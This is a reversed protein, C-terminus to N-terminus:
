RRLDALALLGAFGLFATGSIRRQWTRFGRSRRIRDGLRAFAVALFGCWLASGISFLGGLTGLQLLIRGRDPDVFQPLFAVFFLAVKPNLLNITAGKVVNKMPTWVSGAATETTTDQSRLIKAGLWALYAVGAWRVFEFVLPSAAFLATVGISAAGAQLSVGLVTGCAAWLGARRGHGLSQSAIYAMDVGPTVYVILSALAFAVLTQTELLM